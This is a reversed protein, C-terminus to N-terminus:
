GLSSMSQYEDRTFPSAEPNLAAADLVIRERELLGRKRETGGAYGALAGNSAIVRHCPVVVLWPNRGLATGVARAAGPRGILTALTAYTTVTGPAVASVAAWVGRQFDTGRRAFPLEFRVREGAWWEDLQEQVRYALHSGSFRAEQAECESDFVLSWLVGDCVTARMRGSGTLISYDKGNM